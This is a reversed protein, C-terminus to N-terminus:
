MFMYKVFLEAQQEGFSFGYGSQRSLLVKNVFMIAVAGVAAVAV